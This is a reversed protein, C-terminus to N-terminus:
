VSLDPMCTVSFCSSYSSINTSSTYTLLSLFSPVLFCSCASVRLLAVSPWPVASSRPCPPTRSQGMKPSHNGEAEFMCVFGRPFFPVKRSVPLCLTLGFLSSFFCFIGTPCLISGKLQVYDLKVTLLSPEELLHPSPLPSAGPYPTHNSHSLPVLAPAHPCSVRM